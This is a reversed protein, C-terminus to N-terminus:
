NRINSAGSFDPRGGVFYGKRLDFRYVGPVLVSRDGRPRHFWSPKSQLFQDPTREVIRGRDLNRGDGMMVAGKAVRFRLTKPNIYYTTTYPFKYTSGSIALFPLGKYVAFWGQDLRWWANAVEATRLTLRRKGVKQDLVFTYEGGDIKEEGTVTLNLHKFNGIQIDRLVIKNGASAIARITKPLVSADSVAKFCCVCFAFCVM